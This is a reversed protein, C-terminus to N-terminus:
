ASRQINIGFRDPFKRRFLPCCGEEKIFLICHEHAREVDAVFTGDRHWPRVMGNEDPKKPFPKKKCLPYRREKGLFFRTVMQFFRCLEYSIIRKEKKERNRNFQLVEGMKRKGGRREGDNKWWAWQPMPKRGLPQSVSHASKKASRRKSFVCFGLLSAAAVLLFLAANKNM